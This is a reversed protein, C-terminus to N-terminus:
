FQSMIEASRASLKEIPMDGRLWSFLYDAVSSVVKLADEESDRPKLILGLLESTFYEVRGEGPRLTAVFRVRALYLARRSVGNGHAIFTVLADIFDLARQYRLDSAERELEAQARRREAWAPGFM